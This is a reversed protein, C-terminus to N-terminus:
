GADAERKPKACSAGRRAKANDGEAKTWSATRRRSRTTNIEWEASRSSQLRERSSCSCKCRRRRRRRVGHVGRLECVVERVRRRQGDPELDPLVEIGQALLLLEIRVVDAPLDDQGEGGGDVDVDVDMMLMVKLM